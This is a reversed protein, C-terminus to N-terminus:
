GTKEVTGRRSFHAWKWTVPPFGLCLPTLPGGVSKTLQTGAAVSEASCSSPRRKAPLPPLQACPSAPLLRNWGGRGPAHTLVTAPSSGAVPAGPVPDETGM